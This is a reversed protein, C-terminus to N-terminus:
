LNENVADNADIIGWGFNNDPNPYFSANWKMADYVEDSSAGPNNSFVLTAIGAVSATAASSGGIYSPQNTDLALSIATRDENSTREMIMVFDVEPGDHCPECREMPNSADKVGTVAVTESMNAPFIVGWWSTWSFSTGAAAIIMKGNNNAYYIGDAVTGSWFPTGISMSIVKVDTRNGALILADKVGEKENGTNIVVDEVARVSILDSNYAVGVANGDSGRPAAALGCMSTGHGCQDHPSDLSRWWWRGSYHTSYREVTRGQSDGSNFQSGLNEQDDSAGSDIVCVTVGDGTSAAWAGSIDSTSHHWSQKVNPTITTYDSSNINYDPAGSCGSSSRGSAQTMSPIDYSMSELYRIIEPKARLLKVTEFNTIRVAMTPLVEPMGYPLLDELETEPNIKQEGELIIALIDSRVAIWDTSEINVRHITSKLDTTGETQYGLAFTSDSQMAASWLFHDDVESWHFVGNRRISAEIQENMESKALPDTPNNLLDPNEKEIQEKACGLFLLLVMLALPSYSRMM